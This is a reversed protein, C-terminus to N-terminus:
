KKNTSLLKGTKKDWRVTRVALRHQGHCDTCVIAAPDTKAPVNKQWRAIVKQASADHRPHCAVCATDIATGPYMTEPPTTNNEDNRHAFSDGHCTVCGVGAKVHALALPEAAFNAHCVFCATNDAAAKTKSASNAVPEDLLLPTKTDVELPPAISSPRAAPVSAPQQDDASLAGACLIALLSVWYTLREAWKSTRYSKM